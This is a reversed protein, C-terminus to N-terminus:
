SIEINNLIKENNKLTKLPSKHFNFIKAKFAFKYKICPIEFTKNLIFPLLKINVWSILSYNYQLLMSPACHMYKQKMLIKNCSNFNDKYDAHTYSAGIFDGM